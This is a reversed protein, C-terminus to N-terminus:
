NKSFTVENKPESDFSVVIICKIKGAKHREAIMVVNHPKFYVFTDNNLLIRFSDEIPHKELEGSISIGTSICDQISQGSQYLAVSVQKSEHAILYQTIKGNDMQEVNVNLKSM